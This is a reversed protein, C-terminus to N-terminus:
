GMIIRNGHIRGFRQGAATSINLTVGLAEAKVKEGNFNLKDTQAKIDDVDAQLTDVSAQTALELTGTVHAGDPGYEGASALVYAPDPYVDAM